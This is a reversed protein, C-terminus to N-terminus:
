RTFVWILARVVEVMIGAFIVVAVGLTWHLVRTEQRTM